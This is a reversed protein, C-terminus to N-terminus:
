SFVCPMEEEPGEAFAAKLAELKREGTALLLLHRAELLAALTLTLRQYPARPPVISALLKSSRLAHDLDSAGPFLSATHGDEGLGLVVVDIPQPLSSLKREAEPLGEQPTPAQNKLGLFSAQAAKARLLHKRVLAENSEPHDVPVWREDVLTVIVREWPLDAESLFEFFVAPTKGGSVALSAKERRLLAKRLWQSVLEAAERAQTELDKFVKIVM